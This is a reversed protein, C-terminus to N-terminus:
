ELGLEEAIAQWSVAKFNQPQEPMVNHGDQAIFAGLEYGKGLSRHTVELGDTESIGDVGLATNAAVRFKGLTAYPAQSQLVLYTNDGQSSAILYRSDNAPYLALGEVDDVLEDDIMKVETINSPDAAKASLAWIGVDEEGIFLQGRADDAVCGEPQSKVSFERVKKGFVQGDSASLQYQEFRGSKGNAFAYYVDGDQYMCLGYIEELGTPVEARYTLEGTAPNLQYVSLSNHDRQSAVAIDGSTGSWNFGYRLDVNNLRGTPLMQVQKGDLRYSLLGHKKDTGIIRSAAPDSPHVWIAPDDAADGFRVVPDTEMTPKVTAIVKATVPLLQALTVSDPLAWMNQHILGTDDDRLLTHLQKDDSSFWARLAEPEGLGELQGVIHRTFSGDGQTYLALQHSKASVAIVSSGVVALTESAGALAGFPEAMDVVARSAPLEPDAPYQWIGVSEEAAYLNGNNDSACSTVNPAIALRRVLTPDVPGSEDAMLWQEAGGREDVVFLSIDGDLNKDLCLAEPLFAPAPAQVAVAVSQAETNITLLTPLYNEGMLTAGYLTDTAAVVDLLEAQKVGLNKITADPNYWNLTGANDLLLYSGPAVPVLAAAQMDAVATTTAACAAMSASAMLACCLRLIKM